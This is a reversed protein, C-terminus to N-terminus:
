VGGGGPSGHRRSADVIKRVASPHWRVKGNRYVHWSCYAHAERSHTFWVQVTAARHCRSVECMM